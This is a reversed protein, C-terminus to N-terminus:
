NAAAAPTMWIALLVIVDNTLSSEPNSTSMPNRTLNWRRESSTALRDWFFTPSPSSPPFLVVISGDGSTDVGRSSSRRATVPAPDSSGAGKGLGFCGHAPTISLSDLPHAFRRGPMAGAKPSRAAQRRKERAEPGVRLNVTAGCLLGPCRRRAACAAIEGIAGGCLWLPTLGATWLRAASARREAKGPLWGKSERQIVGATLRQRAGGSGQSAM